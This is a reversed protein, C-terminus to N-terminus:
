MMCIKQGYTSSVSGFDLNLDGWSGKRGRPGGGGRWIEDRDTWHNPNKYLVCMCMYVGVNGHNSSTAQSSEFSTKFLTNLRLYLCIVLTHQSRWLNNNNNSLYSTQSPHHMLCYDTIWRIFARRGYIIVRSVYKVQFYGM